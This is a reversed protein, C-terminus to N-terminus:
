MKSGYGVSMCCCCSVWRVDGLQVPYVRALEPSALLFLPPTLPVSSPSPSTENEGGGGLSGAVLEAAERRETPDQHITLRAHCSTM